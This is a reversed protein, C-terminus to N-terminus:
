KIFEIINKLKDPNSIDTLNRIGYKNKLQTYKTCINFIHHISNITNYDTCLPSPKLNFIHKHTILTHGIKLRTLVVTDKRSFDSPYPPFLTSPQIQRMKNELLNRWVSGM